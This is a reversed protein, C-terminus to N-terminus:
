ESSLQMEKIDGILMELEDKVSIRQTYLTTYASGIAGYFLHLEPNNNEGFALVHSIAIDPYPDIYYIKKIGLNYAKKSCLVCPSATTFLCGGKIGSGGDKTIQLFANEEAHLARTHVQNKEGKYNNYIDKFCYPYLRGKLKKYIKKTLDAKDYYIKKRLEKCFGNDTIEFQSHSEHDKNIFFSNIDRLNCPVQGQPVDNWGIAKISYSDNTIVAGVQRSLCGSNLKANYAVQMCREIQTPTILGPHKILMVYKVLQETLKFKEATEEHQNYIHIDSIELCAQIHQSYFKEENSLKKPYECNDLNEIEDKSLFSLRKKREEDDTNVSVLYFAAYRDKFYTAEYPNRIADICILTKCSGNNKADNRYTKILDKARQALDFMNNGTFDDCFPNGSARINNGMKQFIFTYLQAVKPKEKIEKGDKINTIITEFKYSKLLNDKLDSFLQMIQKFLNIIREPQDKVINELFNIKKDDIIDNLSAGISDIRDKYTELKNLFEAKNYLKFEFKRSKNPDYNDTEIKEECIKEFYNLFLDYGQQFAFSAIIASMEIVTFPEWHYKAYNYIVRYKREDASNFNLDIPKKMCLNSFAKSSLIQASSTCGSGTRGTLGVIIFEDREDFIEEVAKSTNSM